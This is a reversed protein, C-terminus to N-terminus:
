QFNILEIDFILISNGPISGNGSAGYGYSPPIILTGKGGKGFKQMGIKWGDIVGSLSFTVPGGQDFITGSTLKGVYNVTVLSGLNPKAQSGEVDLKYYIGEPTSTFGVLNKDAIYDATTAYEEEEGCSSFGFVGIALLCLVKLFNM